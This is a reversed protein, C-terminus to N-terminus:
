KFAETVQPQNFGHFDNEYDNVCLREVPIFQIFGVQAPVSALFFLVLFSWPMSM